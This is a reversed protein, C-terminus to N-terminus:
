AANALEELVQQVSGSFISQGLNAAGDAKPSAGVLSASPTRAHSANMFSTKRTKKVEPPRTLSKTRAIPQAREQVPTRVPKALDMFWRPLGLADMKAAVPSEHPFVYSWLLDIDPEPISAVAGTLRHSMKTTETASTLRSQQQSVRGWGPGSNRTKPQGPALQDSDGQSRHQVNEDAAPREVQLWKRWPRDGTPPEALKIGSKRDRQGEKVDAPGSAAAFARQMFKQLMEARGVHRSCLRDGSRSDSTAVHVQNQMDSLESMPAECAKGCYSCLMWRKRGLQMHLRSATTSRGADAMRGVHGQERVRQKSQVKERAKKKLLFFFPTKEPRETEPLVAESRSRGQEHLKIQVLQALEEGLNGAAQAVEHAMLQRSRSVAPSPQEGKLADFAPLICSPVQDTATSELWMLRSLQKTDVYTQYVEREETSMPQLSFSPKSLPAESHKAEKQKRELYKKYPGVTRLPRSAPNIQVFTADSNALLKEFWTYKEAKHVQCFWEQLGEQTLRINYEPDKSILPLLNQRHKQLPEVWWEGPSYDDKLVKHHVWSDCDLKEMSPHIAPQYLGLFLNLCAQKERDTFSNNYHRHISTLLEKSSTMMRPRSGLLQYKKHAVSGAYQLALHDGMVDYLESLVFVAQSEFDMKPEPLLCMATLQQKLVELGVFFQLVNTRDLCDVCNTRVMGNQLREPRGQLGTKTHFFGVRTVVSEALRAFVEYITPNSKAHNKM